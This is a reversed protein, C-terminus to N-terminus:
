FHYHVGVGLTLFSASFNSGSKHSIYGVNPVLYLRTAVPMDAGFGVEFGIERDGSIADSELKNAVIGGRGWVLVDGPNHFIYKLGAGFGTSKPDNGLTCGDECGFSYQQIGAYVSFSPNFNAIVEAGLGIGTEAGADSLDGVPATVSVRGEVAFTMQAEAREATLFVLLGAVIPVVLSGIRSGMWQKMTSYSIMPTRGKNFKQRHALFGSPM